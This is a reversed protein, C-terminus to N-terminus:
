HLLPIALGTVLGLAFATVVAFAVLGDRKRRASRPFGNSAGMMRASYSLSEWRSHM